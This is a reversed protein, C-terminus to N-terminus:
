RFSVLANLPINCFNVSVTDLKPFYTPAHAAWRCTKQPYAKAYLTKRVAGIRLLIGDDVLKKLAPLIM